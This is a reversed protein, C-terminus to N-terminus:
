KIKKPNYFSKVYGLSFMISNIGFDDDVIGASFLRDQQQINTTGVNEADGYAPVVPYRQGPVVVSTMGSVYRVELNIFDVGVKYKLGVGGLASLNVQERNGTAVLDIGDTTVAGRTAQESTSLLYNSSLGGFVYPYFKGLPYFARIMATGDLWNQNEIVQSVGEAANDAPSPAQEFGFESQAYSFARRHYGISVVGEFYQLFEREVSLEAGFGIEQQYTKTETNALSNTNFATVVNAESLNGVARLGVRFIPKTRFKNYLFIFEAPDLVPDYAHEPDAKLLNIMSEEARQEDDNFIYVLTLLKHARITEEKSFEGRRLCADLLGPIGQLLGATYRDEAQNLNQTCNSSQAALQGVLFFGLLFIFTRKM